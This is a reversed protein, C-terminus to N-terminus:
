GISFPFNALSTTRRCVILRPSIPARLADALEHANQGVSGRRRKITRFAEGISKQRAHGNALGGTRPTTTSPVSGFRVGKSTDTRPLWRDANLHAGGNLGIGYGNLGGPSMARINLGRLSPSDTRDPFKDLGSKIEGEVDGTLKTNSRPVSSERSYSSSTTSHPM